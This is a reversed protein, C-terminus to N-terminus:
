DEIYVGELEDLTQIRLGQEMADDETTMEDEYRDRPEDYNM